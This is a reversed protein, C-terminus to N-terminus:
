QRQQFGRSHDLEPYAIPTYILRNVLRDIMM